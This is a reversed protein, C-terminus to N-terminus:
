PWTFKAGHNAGQGCHDPTCFTTVPASLDKEPEPVKPPLAIPTPFVEGGGRLVRQPALNGEVGGALSDTLTSNLGYLMFFSIASVIVALALIFYVFVRRPPPAIIPEEEAARTM